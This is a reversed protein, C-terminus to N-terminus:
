KTRLSLGLLIEDDIAMDGLDKFFSGSNYMIDWRTRDLRLEAWAVHGDGDKKFKAVFELPKTVDKVKLNGTVAYWDEKDAKSVDTIEFIAQPYSAVDFFDASKLHAELKEQQKNDTVSTMDLVFTGGSLVGDTLFVEGEELHIEGSQEMLLNRGTWSVISTDTNISLVETDESAVIPQGLEEPEVLVSAEGSCATVLLMFLLLLLTNRFKM